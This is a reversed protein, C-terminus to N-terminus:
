PTVDKDVVSEIREPKGPKGLKWAEIADQIRRTRKDWDTVPKASCMMLEFEQVHLAVAMFMDHNTKGPPYPRRVLIIPTAPRAPWWQSAGDSCKLKLHVTNGDDSTDVELVPFSKGGLAVRVVDGERIYDFTKVLEM